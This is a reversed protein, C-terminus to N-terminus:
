CTRCLAPTHAERSALGRVSPQCVEAPLLLCPLEAVLSAIARRGEVSKISEPLLYSASRKRVPTYM